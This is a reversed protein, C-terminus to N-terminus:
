EGQEAREILRLLEFECESPRRGTLALDLSREGGRRFRERQQLALILWRLSAM